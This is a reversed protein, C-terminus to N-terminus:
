GPEPPLENWLLRRPRTGSAYRPDGDLIGLHDSLRNRELWALVAELESLTMQARAKNAFVRKLVANYRRYLGAGARLVQLSAEDEVAQAAVADGIRSRLRREVASPAESEPSNAAAWEPYPRVGGPGPRLTAYRLGLANSELPTIGRGEGEDQHAAIQRALWEPMQDHPKLKHKSAFARQEAEISHRFRTFLPDDPHFVLASQDEYRGAHPDVRTARAIMQELWPHSRINTLAAVV